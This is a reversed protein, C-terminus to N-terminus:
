YPPAVLLLATGAAALVLALRHIRAAEGRLRQKAAESSLPREADDM